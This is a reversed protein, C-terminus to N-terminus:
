PSTVGGRLFAEGDARMILRRRGVTVTKLKGEAIAEYISSRGLSSARAFGDISFAIDGERPQADDEAPQTKM